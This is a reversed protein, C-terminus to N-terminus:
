NRRRGRVMVIGEVRVVKCAVELQNDIPVRLNQVLELAPPHGIELLTRSFNFRHQWLPGWLIAEVFFHHCTQKRVLVEVGKAGFCAL